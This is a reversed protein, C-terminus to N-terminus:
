ISKLYLEFNRIINNKSLHKEAYVRAIKNKDKSPSDIFEKIAYTLSDICEPEVVKFIKPAMEEIRCLETDKEATVIANGGASLINTLKSPLVADAVGKKQIVLHLDAMALLSPLDAYEQLPLFDVNETMLKKSLIQLRKKSSGEGVILFKCKHEARLNKAAYLINELGQKEGINGSYLIIYDDSSYGLKKKFDSFETNPTVFDIDAWNPLLYLNQEEVGKDKARIMMSRSITTVRTFKKLLWSEINLVLKEFTGNSKESLGFMADIEFDQIHCIVKARSIFSYLLAIPSCFLTPQLVIVIDFKKRILLLRIASSVSFSFLHILRKITNPESPVYIPCRIVRVNGINESKYKYSQYPSSVKWNPYYPPATLVSVQNGLITLTDALEKNYKGIGTLEPYYNLSYILIKMNIRSLCHFLTLKLNKQM